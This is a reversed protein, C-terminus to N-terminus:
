LCVNLAKLTRALETKAADWLYQYTPSQKVSETKIDEIKGYKSGSM